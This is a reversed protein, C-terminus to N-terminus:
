KAPWGCFFYHSHPGAKDQTTWDVSTFVSDRPLKNATDEPVEIFALDIRDDDPNGSDAKTYVFRGPISEITTGITPIYLDAHKLEHAVHAATVFITRREYRIFFGSGLAALDRESKGHPIQFIPRTGRLLLPALAGVKGAVESAYTSGKPM